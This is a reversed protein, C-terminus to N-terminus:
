LAIFLGEKTKEVKKEKKLHFMNNSIQKGTFGTQEQLDKAKIGDKNKKITKLITAKVSKQPKSKKKTKQPASYKPSEPKPEIDPAEKVTYDVKEFMRILDNIQKSLKKFPVQFFETSKEDLEITIAIKM